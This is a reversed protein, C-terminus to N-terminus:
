NEKKNDEENTKFIIKSTDKLNKSLQNMLRDREAKMIDFFHKKPEKRERGIWNFDLVIIWLDIRLDYRYQSVFGNERYKFVGGERISNLVDDDLKHEITKFCHPSKQYLIISQHAMGYDEETLKTYLKKFTIKKM